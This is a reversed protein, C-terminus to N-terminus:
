LSLFDFFLVGKIGDTEAVHVCYPLLSAVNDPDQLSSLVSPSAPPPFFLSVPLLPFLVLLSITHRLILQSTVQENTRAHTHTVLCFISLNTRKPRIHRRKRTEKGSSMCVEMVRLVDAPAGIVHYKPFGRSPMIGWEVGKGRM